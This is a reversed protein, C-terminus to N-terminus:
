AGGAATGRRSGLADLYVGATRTVMSHVSFHEVV